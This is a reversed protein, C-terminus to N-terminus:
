VEFRKFDKIKINEGFKAIKEKVLEDITKTEDRIWPQSLLEKRDKPNTATVQAALDHALQGFDPNRAVFDTETALVLTAGSAKTHHIYTEVIGAEVSRAAKKAAVQAGRKKLFGLAKDLDGGSKELAKKCEAISVGTKQRLKKIQEITVKTM